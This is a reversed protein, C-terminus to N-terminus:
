AKNSRDIVVRSTRKSEEQSTEITQERCDLFM